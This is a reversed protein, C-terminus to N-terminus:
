HTKSLKSGNNTASRTTTSSTNAPSLTYNKPVPFQLVGQAGHLFKQAGQLKVIPGSYKLWITINQYFDFESTIWFFVEAANGHVSSMKRSQSRANGRTFRDSLGPFASRCFYRAQSRREWANWSAKVGTHQIHFTAHQSQPNILVDYHWSISHCHQHHFQILERSHLTTKHSVWHFQVSTHM